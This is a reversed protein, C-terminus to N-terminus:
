SKEDRRDKGCDCTAMYPKHIRVCSCRWWATPKERLPRKKGSNAPGGQVLM